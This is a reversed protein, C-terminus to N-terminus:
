SAADVGDVPLRWQDADHAGAAAGVGAALHGGLQSPLEGLGADAHDGSQGQADIAGSVLARQADAACWGDADHAAPEVHDVRPGVGGQPVGHGLSSQQETFGREAGPGFQM